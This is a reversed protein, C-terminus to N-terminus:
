ALYTDVATQIPIIADPQMTCQYSCIFLNEYFTQITELCEKQADKTWFPLLSRHMINRIKEEDSLAKVYNRNEKELFIIGGLSYSKADYIGSTGCWLTGDVMPKGDKVSILNIDGNIIPTKVLKKWLNTHTTKGHGSPASFLWLRDRYLISSSHIAIKGNKGAFYFFGIRIAYSVEEQISASDTFIDKKNCSLIVNKGCKSIHAEKIYQFEPFLLLFENQRELVCLSKNRLLLTCDSVAQLPSFDVSIKQLPADPPIPCDVKFDLFDQKFVNEPGFLQLFIGGMQLTKYPMRSSFDPTEPLLIGQHYLTHIFQSVSTAMAPFQEKTCSYHEQCISVLERIDKAQECVEWLFAGTKNLRIDQLHDANGQGFPLLYPINAIYELRYYPNKIM